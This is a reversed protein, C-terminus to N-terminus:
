RRVCQWSWRGGRGLFICVSRLWPGCFHLRPSDGGRGQASFEVWNRTRNSEIVNDANRDWAFGAKKHQLWALNSSIEVTTYRMDRYVEPAHRKVYDLIDKAVTGTGAGLEYIELPSTTGCIMHHSLVCEAVAGGYYPSFIESPTLWAVQADPHGRTICIVVNHFPSRPNLFKASSCSEQMKRYAADLAHHYGDRGLLNRFSLPRTLKGVPADNSAFYGTTPNYLADRIFDRLLM